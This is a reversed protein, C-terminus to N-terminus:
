FISTFDPEKKKHDLIQFDSVLPGTQPVDYAIAERQAPTLNQ